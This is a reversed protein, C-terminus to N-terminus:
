FRSVWFVIPNDTSLCIPKKPHNFMNPNKTLISLTSCVRSDVVQYKNQFLKYVWFNLVCVKPFAIILSFCGM